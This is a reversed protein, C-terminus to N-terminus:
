VSMSPGPVSPGRSATPKPTTPTSARTANRKTSACRSCGITGSPMKRDCCNEPALATVNETYAARPVTVKRSTTCRCVSRPYEASSAPADSNGIVAQMSSSEARAPASACRMPGRMGIVMPGSITATPMASRPRTSGPVVYQAVTKGASMTSPSPRENVTAGEGGGHQARDVVRVGPMADAMLLETARM